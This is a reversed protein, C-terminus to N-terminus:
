NGTNILLLTNSCNSSSSCNYNLEVDVIQNKLTDSNGCAEIAYTKSNFGTDSPKGSLQTVITESDDTINKFVLGDSEYKIKCSGLNVEKGGIFCRL